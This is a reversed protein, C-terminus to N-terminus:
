LEAKIRVNKKVEDAGKWQLGMSLAVFSWKDAAEQIRHSM